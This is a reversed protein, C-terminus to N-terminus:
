GNNKERLMDGIEALYGHGRLDLGFTTYGAKSFPKGAMDYAWSDATIGHFILVAKDKKSLNVTDPNWRRLFLTEGDETEFTEYPIKLNERLSAAEEQSINKQKVISEFPLYAL